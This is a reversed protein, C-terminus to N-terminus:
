HSDQVGPEGQVHHYDDHAKTAAELPHVWSWYRDEKDEGISDTAVGRLIAVLVRAEEPDMDVHVRGVREDYHVKFSDDDDKQEPPTTPLELAGSRLSLMSEKSLSVAVSEGWREIQIANGPLFGMLKTNGAM